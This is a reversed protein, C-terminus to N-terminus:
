GDVNTSSSLFKVEKIFDDENTTFTIDLFLNGGNKLYVLVAFFNLVCFHCNHTTLQTICCAARFTFLFYFPELFM